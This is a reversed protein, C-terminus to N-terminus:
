VCNVKSVRLNGGGLVEIDRRFPQGASCGVSRLIVTGTGVSVSGRPTFVIRVSGTAIQRTLASQRRLVPEENPPATQRVGDANLDGWVIWGDHWDGGCVSGDVSPCVVAGRNNRMAESRAFALTAIFENSTTALGNSQLASSFSPLAIASLIAVIAITVM